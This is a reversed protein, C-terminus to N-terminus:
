GGLTLILSSADSTQSFHFYTHYWSSFPKGFPPVLMHAHTAQALLKTHNLAYHLSPLTLSPLYTSTMNQTAKFAVSMIWTDKEYITPIIWLKLSPFKNILTASMNPVCIKPLLSLLNSLSTCTDRVIHISM